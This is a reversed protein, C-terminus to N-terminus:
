QARGIADALERAASLIRASDSKGKLVQTITSPDVGLSRALDAMSGRQRKLLRKIQARSLQNAESM